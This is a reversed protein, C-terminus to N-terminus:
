WTGTSSDSRCCSSQPSLKIITVGGSAHGIAITKKYSAWCSAHHSDPLWLVKEGQYCLWEGDIVLHNQGDNMRENNRKSVIDGDLDVQLTELEVIPVGNVCPSGFRFRADPVWFVCDAADTNPLRFVKILWEHPSLLPFLTSSGLYERGSCFKISNIPPCYQSDRIRTRWTGNTIDWIEIFQHNVLCAMVQDDPSFAVYYIEGSAAITAERRETNIGWLIIISSSCTFALMTNSPSFSFAVIHGNYRDGLDQIISENTVNWILVRGTRCVTALLRGDFSFVVSIVHKDHPQQNQLVHTADWLRISKGVSVLTEDDEYFLISLSFGSQDRLIQTLSDRSLDWVAIEDEFQYTERNFTHHISSLLQKGPSFAIGLVPGLYRIIHERRVVTTTDWIIVTGKDDGSALLLGDKSFSMCSIPNANGELTHQLNRTALDWLDIKTDFCHSALLLGNASFKASANQSLRKTLKHRQIGAAHDWTLFDWTTSPSALLQGGDTFVLSTVWGVDEDFTSHLTGQNHDWFQLKGTGASCSVLLKGDSSFAIARIHDSEGASWWNRLNGTVTNWFRITMDPFGAALVEGTPSLAVCTPNESRQLEGLEAGWSSDVNQTMSIFGPLEGSFQQKVASSTPAFLLGSVYLQLPKEKIMKENRLIYRIADHLLEWM